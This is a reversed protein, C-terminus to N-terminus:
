LMERFHIKDVDFARTYKRDGFANCQLIATTSQLSQRLRSPM